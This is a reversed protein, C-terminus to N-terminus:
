DIGLGGAMFMEAFTSVEGGLFGFGYYVFRQDVEGAVVLGNRRPWPDGYPDPV